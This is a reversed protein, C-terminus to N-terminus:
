PNIWDGNEKILNILENLADKEPINKKMAEKQKYLTVREPGSGVYGYDADAMEGIGNIVCGMVAIKLNKLHSTQKKVASTVEQLNFLTRGCGPCSIYETKSFRVRTAQLINFQTSLVDITKQNKNVVFFGDALGDLFLLGGDVAAKIQFSELVFDDYINKIVIPNKVFANDLQLIFARHEYVRQIESEVVIVTLPSKKLWEIVDETLQSYKLVLFNVYGVDAQTYNALTYLPYSNKRNEIENYVISDCIVSIKESISNIYKKNNCYIYDPVFGNNFEFSEFENIQHIVIPSNKGGINIISYSDRKNYNFPSYSKFEIPKISLKGKLTKVYEIIFRAVGIEREPEETLSVRITDGLGDVLLAGIGVASKIRGDEGEGAETVGLHLPYSMGEENMRAVLLRVTHVMIRTNSSKISLVINEFDNESCIRLYEMCSEVMGEPTDGYKSMIRDSLSGHNCGIRIATNKDKCVQLFPIFKEKIKKIGENWNEEDFGISRYKKVGEVFNGPNIRVKEVLQAAIIAAQPNFHVDAVLPTTYGKKVLGMKINNLNQAERRGQTTLRVIEGGEEIIRIAQEVSDNTDLTNTTTMSQIRIPNNGGIALIGVKVEKTKRRKYQFLSECFVMQSETKDM